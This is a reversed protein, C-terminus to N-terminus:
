TRKRATRFTGSEVVSFLSRTMALSVNAKAPRVTFFWAWWFLLAQLPTRILLYVGGWTHGGIGIQNIAASITAPFVAVLVAMATLGALRRSAPHLIGLAIAIAILGMAIVLHRSFPVFHPLMQMVAETQALQGLGFFAFALAIGLVGGFGVREAGGIVWSALLPLLLLCLIITQTTM